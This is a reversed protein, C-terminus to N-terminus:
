SSRNRFHPNDRYKCTSFSKGHSKCIDEYLELGKPRGEADQKLSIIITKRPHVAYYLGIRYYEREPLNPTATFFVYCGGCSHDTTDWGQGCSRVREWSLCNRFFLWQWYIGDENISVRASFLIALWIMGAAGLLLAFALIIMPWSNVASLPRKIEYWILGTSGLVGTLAGFVNEIAVSRSVIRKKGKMSPM